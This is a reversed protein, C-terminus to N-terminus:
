ADGVRLQRAVGELPLPGGKGGEVIEGGCVGLFCGL